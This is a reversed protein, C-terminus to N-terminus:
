PDVKDWIFINRCPDVSLLIGVAAASGATPAPFDQIAFGLVVAGNFGDVLFFACLWEELRGAAWGDL